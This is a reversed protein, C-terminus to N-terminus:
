LRGAVIEITKITNYPHDELSKGLVCGPEFDAKDLLMAVGVINSSTLVDGKSVPGLVKCPVRGALAVPYSDELDSNMLYAPNTSIVGALRTDAYRYSSKIEKRGGFIVVDGPDLPEDSLYNEALDAYRATTATGSFTVAYVTAFNATSSGINVSNNAAPLIPSFTYYGNVGVQITSSAVGPDAGTTSINTWTNSNNIEVSYFSGNGNYAGAQYIWIDYATASVGAANGVVKVNYSVGTSNNIYFQTYGAFGNADVSAGNSTLFHIYIESQQATTANYGVSTVVKIFCHNGQQAATFTGLKIWSAAGGVAPLGYTRNINIGNITANTNGITSANVTAATLTGALNVTGTATLTTFAGTNATNAGIPGTHYGILQGAYTTTFSNAVFAGTGTVANTGKNFTLGATGSFSGGDNFQVYTNSGGAPTTITTGNAFFHNDSYIANAFVNGGIGIGGATVIAGTTKSTSTTSSNSVLNGSAQTYTLANTGTFAFSSNFQLQGQTGGPTGGAGGTFPVGNAYYYNNAFLGGTTSVINGATINGAVTVYALVNSFNLNGTVNLTAINAQTAVLNSFSNPVSSIDLWFSSTGDNVRSYLIDSSTDYWQDGNRLATPASSSATYSVISANGNAWYYNAAYVGYTGAILNGVSANATVALSSLTGLSTVYPQANNTLTGTLLAGSNGITAAQLTAANVTGSFNATGSVGLGTLTGLSTVYPQANTTLTGTLLAGSNGITAAQLTAANLTGALNATGSVGLTSSATITTFAGTNATNAGIAGTHYGILQGGNQATYSNAIATGTTLTTFVGTNATNAGIAGTLYGIVQGGNQATYSNAILTGTTLTTFVGTNATTAGVTGNFPGNLPGNHTGTITAGTNGINLAQVAAANVTGAITISAGSIATNINGLTTAYVTAATITGAVALSTGSLATASNGITTANVTAATVTGAFAATGSVNLTSSAAVTTFSGTNATNAGIAGTVYGFVQGGVYVNGAIGAGGSIRLAGTTTSTSTTSNAAVLEGTKITGYTGSTFVNSSNETGTTYYELFGSANVRGLFALNDGGALTSDFYHLKFGIDRGDNVTWAALNPYTHLNIVSDNVTLDTSGIITNLGQVSLNGVVTLNGGIFTNKAVGLGGSVVLGGSSSNTSDTANTLTTLGSATLTTFAATNATINGITGNVPGSVAGQYGSTATLTTFVGTNATNAGIAGTLYGTVQGGNQATYSNAISTGATLTTFVGTNATNAGIAGTHYGFVQGGSVTTVSTAVITNATTAGITGNFPGNLSGNITNANLTGNVTLGTLTGLSTVYPQANNTLTGVLLAGSNGVTAAQLTAATLTGAFNSTQTASLTTFAGTSPTANGIPTNNISSSNLNILNTGTADYISFTGNTDKLALSGLYITNGSLWINSWRQTSSGLSYTVNASPLLNGTFTSLGGVNLNGGIGVGGGVVLAGTTTSTSTTTSNSYLNGSTKNYSWYTAGNITTADNFQLMANGGRPGNFSTFSISTTGIVINGTTNIVYYRNANATGEEIYTTVGPSLSYSQNADTTRNWTGNSGTGLTAVYYFGNQTADTQGQVLVRDNALLTVGDYTSPAGGSLTINTTSTIRCSSKYDSDLINSAKSRTLAM